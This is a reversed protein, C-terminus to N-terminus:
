YFGGFNMFGGKYKMSLPIKKKKVKELCFIWGHVLVKLSLLTVIM